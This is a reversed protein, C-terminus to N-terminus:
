KKEKKKGNRADDLNKVKEKMMKRNKRKTVKRERWKDNGNVTWKKFIREIKKGGKEESIAKEWKMREMKNKWKKKLNMGRKM